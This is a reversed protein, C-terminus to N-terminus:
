LKLDSIYDELCDESDFNGGDELIENVFLTYDIGNDSDHYCICYNTKKDKSTFSVRNLPEYEKIYNELKM